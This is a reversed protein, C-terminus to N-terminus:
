GTKAKLIESLLDPKTPDRELHPWRVGGQYTVKLTQFVDGNEVLLEIPAPKPNKTAAIADNLLKANFRRGNIAILRMGPALGAQAAAAGPAADFVTGDERLIMGLSYLLNIQKNAKESAQAVANPKDSYVVKWGAASFANLPPHPQIADIRQALFNRWDYPEVANLTAIVEDRDYPKVEPAGSAGGHFRRCFDDLSRAGASKQRILADAELWVLASEPYFDVGRRWSAWAQPARYLVQAAVATDELPRWTRGPRHDLLAAFLALNERVWEGGALGSRAALLTGLYTTLGEYVWLLEGRMPTQFDPTALGSPRRYKGNWSHAYEHPLLGSMLNRLDDDIL